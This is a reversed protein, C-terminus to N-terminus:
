TSRQTLFRTAVKTLNKMLGMLAESTMTLTVSRVVLVLYIELIAEKKRAAAIVKAM